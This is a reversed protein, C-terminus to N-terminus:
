RSLICSRVEDSETKIEMQNYTRAGISFLAVRPAFEDGMVALRIIM